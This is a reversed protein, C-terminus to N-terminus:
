PLHRELTRAARHSRRGKNGQGAVRTLRVPEAMQRNRQQPRRRDAAYQPDRPDLGAFAEAALPLHTALQRAVPTDLLLEVGASADLVLDTM